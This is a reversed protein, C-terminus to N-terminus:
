QEIPITLTVITGQAAPKLQSRDQITFHKEGNLGLLDLRQRVMKTGFSKHTKNRIQAQAALLGIGNDIVECHLGAEHPSIKVSLQRSKALPTLGHLIANEIIPQLIMSPIYTNYPDIEEHIHFSYEFPHRLSELSCYQELTDIEDSLPIYEEATNKLTKRMLGAFQGLYIDAKEQEKKRILNQISSMANFLFHPNMQSRIGRLEVELLQRRRLDRRMSIRRRWLILSSILLLSLAGIGLSQWFQLRQEPTWASSREQNALKKWAGRLKRATGLALHNAQINGAEDILFFHNSRNDVRYDERIKPIEEEPVYIFLGELGAISKSFQEKSPATVLHIVTPHVVSQQMLTDLDAVALDLLDDWGIHLLLQKGRFDKLAVEVGEQDTFTWDPAPMGVPLSRYFFAESRNPKERTFVLLEEILQSDRTMSLLQELQYTRSRNLKEFEGHFRFLQMAMHRVFTEKGLLLKAMHMEKDSNLNTAQYNQTLFYYQFTLFEEVDFDFTRDKPLRYLLAGLAQLHRILAPPLKYDKEVMFRYAAEWQTTAHEIRIYRDMFAALEPRLSTKHAALFSLEKEKKTKIKEFYANPEKELLKFDYSRFLTDGRMQHYFDLLFQNDTAGKGALAMERYFANADTQFELTDGPEIYFRMSQYGHYFSIMRREKLPFALEFYGNDDLHILSDQWYTPWDGQRFFAIRVEDTAPNLIKGRVLGLKTPFDVQLFDAYVYSEESRDSLGIPGEVDPIEQDLLQCFFNSLSNASFAESIETEALWDKQAELLGSTPLRGEVKESYAKLSEELASPQCSIPFDHDLLADFLFLQPNFYANQYRTDLFIPQSLKSQTSNSGSQEVAPLEIYSVYTVRASLGDEPDKFLQLGIRMDYEGAKLQDPFLPYSGVASGGISLHRQQVWEVEWSEGNQLSQQLSQGSLSAFSTSVLLFICLKRIIM